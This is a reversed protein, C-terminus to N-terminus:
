SSPHTAPSIVEIVRFTKETGVRRVRHDPFTAELWRQLSDSGLNKQVVLYARGLPELRPIYTLMLEHLAAKGIRIPPNSWIASFRLDEPLEHALSATLNKAGAQKANATTQDVSRNNIDISFVKTEPKLRAISIGIPGWGCGLDLVNGDKPFLAWHGLLVRTGPDLKTASFSGSVGAMLFNQGAVDFSIQTETKKAEPESSFYHEQPM